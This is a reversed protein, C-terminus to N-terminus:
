IHYDIAQTAVPHKLLVEFSLSQNQPCVLREHFLYKKLQDTIIGTYQQEDSSTEGWEQIDAPSLTTTFGATGRENLKSM